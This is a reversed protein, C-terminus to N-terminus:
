SGNRRSGRNLGADHRRLAPTPQSPLEEDDQQVNKRLVDERLVLLAEIQRLLDQTGMPKV